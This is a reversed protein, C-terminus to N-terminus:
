QWTSRLETLPVWNGGADQAQWFRWGNALATGLAGTSQIV